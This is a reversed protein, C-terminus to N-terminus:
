SREKRNKKKGRRRRMQKHEISNEQYVKWGNKGNKKQSFIFKPHKEM